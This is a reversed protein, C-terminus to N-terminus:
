GAKFLNENVLFDIKDQLTSIFTKHKCYIDAGYYFHKSYNLVLSAHLIFPQTIAFFTNIHVINKTLLIEAWNGGNKQWRASSLDESLTVNKILLSAHSANKRVQKVLSILFTISRLPTTMFPHMVLRSLCGESPLFKRSITIM